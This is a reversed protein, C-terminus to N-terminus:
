VSLDRRKYWILAVITVATAFGGLALFVYKPYSNKALLESGIFYNFFSFYRLGKLNDQLSSIINIVYMLMLIGSTVATSKNKESFIVSPLTALSYVAWVFFFSGISATLYNASAYDINHFLALPIIGFLSVASFGAILLLGTLYREVFVRIRSVPLSSVLEITGSDIERVAIYNAMSIAFIIALIPWLFSMYETSMYSELSKFSLLSPDMNFAKFFEPPFAKMMQDIQSSQKSISPFLAVYMELFAVAGLSFVIFSKYKDHLMSKAFALM